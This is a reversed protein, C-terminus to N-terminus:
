NLEVMEHINGRVPASQFRRDQPHIIMALGRKPSMMVQVRRDIKIDPQVALRHRMLILALGIKIEAM